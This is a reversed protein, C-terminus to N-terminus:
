EIDGLKKFNPGIKTQTTMSKLAKRYANIEHCASFAMDPTLEKREIQGCITSLVRDVKKDMLAKLDPLFGTIRKIRYQEELEEPTPETSAM